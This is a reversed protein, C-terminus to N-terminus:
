SFYEIEAVDAEVGNDTDSAVVTFVALLKHIGDIGLDNFTITFPNTVSEHQSNWLADSAQDGTDRTVSYHTFQATCDEGYGNWVTVTIVESEGPAMAGGKSQDVTARYGVREFQDLQGFIYANGFVQGYGSFVKMYSQGYKDVAPMSFGDLKGSIQIINLSQFQWTNVGTLALSYETTTYLFAQRATNSINGRGAFHMGAFPHFGNGGQLSSRLLYSFNQNNAGSVATIQFYVTKFGAFKFNGQHDDTTETENGIMDHWIGMCLDGVAIAGIDGPELKLKGTGTEVGTPDPTIEEIIGGGFTDWRIGTYISVRNYRLEPVELWEWLKLSRMEAHGREDVKAGQGFVGSRFDGVEIGEDAKVTKESHVDEPVDIGNVPAFERNQNIYVPRKETGAPKIGINELFQQKPLASRNKSTVLAVPEEQSSDLSASVIPKTEDETQDLVNQTVRAELLQISSQNPILSDALEVTIEPLADKNVTYHFSSVYLAVAADTDNHKIWIKAADCLKPLITSVNEQLFIRSFEIGLNFKHFNNNYIDAVIRKSLREEAQLIYEFPMYIGTLVYTDGVVPQMADNGKQEAYPMPVADGYTSIDKKLAIWVEHTTTDNQRLRNELSDDFKVNGNEDFLLDGNADVAVINYNTDKQVYIEFKCSACLGSTMSITAPETGICGFLNFPMKPLKVYFYPHEMDMNNGQTDENFRNNDHEDYAIAKFQDIPENDSNIIGKISAKIEDYRGIHEVTREPRNSNYLFGFVYPTNQGDLYLNNHIKGDQGLYEGAESDPTYGQAPVFPYNKANYFRRLERSNRYISPILNPQPTLWNELSTRSITLYDGDSPTINPSLTVWGEAVYFFDNVDRSDEIKYHPAEIDFYADRNLNFAFSAAYNNSPFYPDNEVDYRNRFEFLYLGTSPATYTYEGSVPTMEAGADAGSMSTLTKLLKKNQVYNMDDDFGDVNVTGRNELYTAARTLIDTAGAGLSVVRAYYTGERTDPNVTHSQINLTKSPKMHIIQGAELYFFFGVTTYIDYYTSFLQNYVYPTYYGWSYPEFYVTGKRIVGWSDGRSILFDGPILSLGAFNVNATAEFACNAFRVYGWDTSFTGGGMSDLAHSNEIIGLNSKAYQSFTAMGNVSVTGADLLPEEYDYDYQINRGRFSSSALSGNNNGFKDAVKVGNEYFINVQAETNKTFGGRMFVEMFSPKVAYPYGRYYVLREDQQCFGEHMRSIADINVATHGAVYLPGDYTHVGSASENPYYWPLNESSGYGTARNIVDNGAHEKKTLTLGSLRYTLPDQSSGVISGPKYDGFHIEIVGVYAGTGACIYYPVGWTEVATTLVETFYKDEFSVSKDETTIGNDVVVRFKADLGSAKLSANLKSIFGDKRDDGSNELKGAFHITTNNSVPNESEGDVADYVYVGALISRDNRFTLNHSWREDENDKESGPIHYLNYREGNFIVYVDDTWENDLCTPWMLTGTIEPASGMRVSDFSFETLQAPNVNSPFHQAVGGVDIM